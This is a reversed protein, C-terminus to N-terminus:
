TAPPRHDDTQTQEFGLLTVEDTLQWLRRANDFWPRYRDAQDRTLSRTVTKAAWAAPEYRTPGHLVPPDARCRCGRHGCRSTRTVLSGPLMPGLAAIADTIQRRRRAIDATAAAPDSRPSM